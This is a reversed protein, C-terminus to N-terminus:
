DSPNKSTPNWVNLKTEEINKKFEGVETELLFLEDDPIEKQFKKFLDTPSCYMSCLQISKTGLSEKFIFELVIPLLRNDIEDINIRLNCSKIDKFLIEEFVKRFDGLNKYKKM